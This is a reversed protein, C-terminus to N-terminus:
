LIDVAASGRFASPHAPSPWAYRPM